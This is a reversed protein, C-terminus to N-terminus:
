FYFYLKNKAVLFFECNFLHIRKIICSDYMLKQLHCWKREQFTSLRFCYLRKMEKGRKRTQCLIKRSKFNTSNSLQFLYFINSTYFINIQSFVECSDKPHMKWLMNTFFLFSYKFAIYLIWLMKGDQLILFRMVSPFFTIKLDVM